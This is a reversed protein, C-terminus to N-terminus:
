KMFATVYTRGGHGLEQAHTSLVRSCNADVASFAGRNLLQFEPNQGCVTNILKTHNTCFVIVKERCLM